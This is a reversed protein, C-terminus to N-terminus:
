MVTPEPAVRLFPLRRNVVVLIREIVRYRAKTEIANATVRRRLGVALGILVRKGRQSVDFTKRSLRQQEPDVVGPALRRRIGLGAIRAVRIDFQRHVEQGTQLLGLVIPTMRAAAAGLM